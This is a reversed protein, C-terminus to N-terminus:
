WQVKTLGCMAFFEYTTELWNRGPLGSTWWATSARTGGAWVAWAIAALAAVPPLPHVHKPAGDSGLADSAAKKLVGKRLTHAGPCPASTSGLPVPIASALPLRTM